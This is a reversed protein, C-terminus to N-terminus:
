SENIIRTSENIQDIYVRRVNHRELLTPISEPWEILCITNPHGLYDRIGIDILEQETKIRYADVHVLAVDEKNTKEYVQMLTFTPSVVDEIGFHQAIGKILTTKGAGLEGEFAVVDGGRLTTGLAKGIRQTETNNSSQQQM